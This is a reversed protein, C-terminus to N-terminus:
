LNNRGKNQDLNYVVLKIYNYYAWELHLQAKYRYYTNRAIGILKMCEGDSLTGGFDRSHKLIRQKRKETTLRVNMRKSVAFGPWIVRCPKM